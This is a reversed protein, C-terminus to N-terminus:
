TLSKKEIIAALAERAERIATVNREACSACTGDSVRRLVARTSEEDVNRALVLYDYDEM